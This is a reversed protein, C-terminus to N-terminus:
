RTLTPKTSPPRIDYITGILCSLKYFFNFLLPHDLSPGFMKPQIEVVHSDQELLEKTTRASNHIKVKQKRNKLYSCILTLSDESFNYAKIKALLLDFNINDFTKSLDMFLACASDGENLANKSNELM